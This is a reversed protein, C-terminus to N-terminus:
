LISVTEAKARRKLVGGPTLYSRDDRNGIKGFFTGGAWGRAALTNTELGSFLLPTSYEISTTSCGPVGDEEM